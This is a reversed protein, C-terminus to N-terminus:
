QRQFNFHFLNLLSACLFLLRHLRRRMLFFPIARFSLRPQPFAALSEAVEPNKAFSLFRRYRARFGAGSMRKAFLFCLEMYSMVVSGQWCQAVDIGRRASIDATLARRAKILAIKNVLKAEPDKEYRSIVSSSHLLQRYLIRHSVVVRAAHSLCLSLFITDEGVRLSPDFRLSGGRVLGGRILTRWLAPNEVYLGNPRRGLWSHVGENSFGLFRTLLANVISDGLHEGSPFVSQFVGADAGDMIRYYDFVVVDARGEKALAYAEACAGPEITDDADVFWFYEGTACAAGANRAESVGSNKERRLVRVRQDAGAYRDCVAPTEDTSGDDVIIIELERMSQSLISDLCMPLFAAGNYVPIIISIMTEM